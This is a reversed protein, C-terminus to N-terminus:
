LKCSFGCIYNELSKTRTRPLREIQNSICVLLPKTVNYVVESNQLKYVAPETRTYLSPVTPVTQDLCERNQEGESIWLSQIWNPLLSWLSESSLCYM